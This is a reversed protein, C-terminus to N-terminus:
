KAWWSIIALRACFWEGYLKRFDELSKRIKTGSFLDGDKLPFVKALFDTKFVLGQEPDV